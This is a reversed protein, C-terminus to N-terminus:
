IPSSKQMHSVTSRRGGRKRDDINILSSPLYVIRPKISRGQHAEYNMKRNGTVSYRIYAHKQDEFSMKFACVMTNKHTNQLIWCILSVFLFLWAIIQYYIKILYM